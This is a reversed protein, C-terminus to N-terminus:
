HVFITKTINRINGERGTCNKRRPATLVVEYDPRGSRHVRLVRLEDNLKFLDWTLGVNRVILGLVIM